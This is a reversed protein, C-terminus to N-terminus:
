RMPEAGSDGGTPFTLDLYQTAQIIGLVQRVLPPAWRRQPDTGLQPAVLRVRRGRAILECGGAALVNRVWDSGAGYTLAIRYGNPTRFANVPTRYSQGSRRGTHVVIAFGPLWGAVLGSVRNTARRNFRALSSPLPM